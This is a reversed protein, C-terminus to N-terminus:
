LILILPMPLYIWNVLVFSPVLNDVSCLIICLNSVAIFKLTQKILSIRKNITVAKDAWEISNKGAFTITNNNSVLDTPLLIKILERLEFYEQITTNQSPLCYIAEREGFFSDTAVDCLFCRSITNEINLSRYILIQYSFNVYFRARKKM